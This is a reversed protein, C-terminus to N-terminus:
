GVVLNVAGTSGPIVPVVLGPGNIRRLSRGPRTVKWRWRGCAISWSTIFRSRSRSTSGCSGPCTSSMSTTTSSGSVLRSCHPWQRYQPLVGFRVEPLGIASALRDLQAAMVVPPCVSTALASEAVLIEIRRGPEYLVRQRLMRARIAEDVDDAPVGLLDAQSTLVARAYDAIQLLGPVAMVDVARIMGAAREEGADREQRARHGARLQRRWADHRVRLERLEHRLEEVLGVSAEVAGLWGLLDADSPMQKGREIKSIKSPDWGLEAALDKAQMGAAIRLGVLRDGFRLRRTEYSPVREELRTM